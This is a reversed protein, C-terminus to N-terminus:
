MRASHPSSSDEAFPSDSGLHKWGALAKIRQTDVVGIVDDRLVAQGVAKAVTDVHLPSLTLLRALPEQAALNLLSAPTPAGKPLYSHIISSFDLLTSPVTSLPRTHPHYMVGPRVFVPRFVRKSAASSSRIEESLGAGDADPEQSNGTSLEPETWSLRELAHEAQRKTLVYRPDIIPRFIDEASIFVFPPPQWGEAQGNQPLSATWSRAVNLAADRNMKEYLGERQSNQLPNGSGLGWGKTLSRFTDEISSNTGKYNGELLIGITSVVADVRPRSEEANGELIARYSEPRFADAAAWRVASSSSWAPRHGSPTLFPRGTPSVSTVLHGQALLRKTIASGSGVLLIDAELRSAM